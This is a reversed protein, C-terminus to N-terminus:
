AEVILGHAMREALIGGGNTQGSLDRGARNRRPQLLIWGEVGEVRLRVARSQSDADFFVWRSGTSVATAAAPIHATAVSRFRCTRISCDRSRCAPSEDTSTWSDAVPAVASDRRHR